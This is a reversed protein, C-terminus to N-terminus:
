AAASASRDRFAFEAVAALTNLTAVLGLILGLLWVGDAVPEQNLQMALPGAAIAAVMVQFLAFAGRTDREKFAWDYIMWCIGASAWAIITMPAGSGSMLEVLWNAHFIYVYSLAAQLAIALTVLALKKM